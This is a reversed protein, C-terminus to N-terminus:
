LKDRKLVVPTNIWTHEDLVRFSDSHNDGPYKGSSKFVAQVSMAAM